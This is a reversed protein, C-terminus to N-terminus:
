LGCICSNAESSVTALGLAAEILQILLSDDAHKKALEYEKKALHIQNISLYAQVTLAASNLGYNTV